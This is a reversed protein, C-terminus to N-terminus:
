SIGVNTEPINPFPLRKRGHAAITSPIASQALTTDILQEAEVKEDAYPRNLSRLWRWKLEAEIVDAPLIIEDDGSDPEAILEGGADKAWYDSYYEVVLGLKVQAGDRCEWTCSTAKPTPNIFIKREGEVSKIRYQKWVEAKVLGSKWEQWQQPTMVSLPRSEVRDWGTDMVLRGYDEPLDYDPQNKVM